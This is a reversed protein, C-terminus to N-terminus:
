VSYVYPTDLSYEHIRHQSMNGAGVVFMRTGDNNFATSNARKEQGSIIIESDPTDSATSVDFATSLLYEDVSKRGAHQVIFMKTGDNNFVVQTAQADGGRSVGKTNNVIATSIDYPTTLIHEIVADSTDDAGVTYMKTGDNNFNLGLYFNSDLSKSQVFTPEAMSKSFVLILPILFIFSRLCSKLKM